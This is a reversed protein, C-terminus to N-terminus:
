DCVKVILFLPCIFKVIGHYDWIKITSGRKYDEPFFLTSTPFIKYM